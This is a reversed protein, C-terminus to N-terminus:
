TKHNVTGKKHKNCVGCTHNDYAEKDTCSKLCKPCFDRCALLAKINSICDYHKAEDDYLLYYQKKYISDSKFVLSNNINVSSGLVPIDNLSFVLINCELVKEILEIDMLSIPGGWCM